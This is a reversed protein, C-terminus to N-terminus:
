QSLPEVTESVSADMQKRSNRILGSVLRGTLDAQQRIHAQQQQNLYDQDIAVYLHSRLETLSSRAVMFFQRSDRFSYRSFGEAINAMISMAARRMQRVLDRDWVTAHSGTVTFVLNVLVRAEQWAQLDEFREIRM